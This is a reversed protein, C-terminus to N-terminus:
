LYQPVVLVVLCFLLGIQRRLLMWQEDLDWVTWLDNLGMMHQFHEKRHTAVTPVELKQDRFLGLVSAITSIVLSSDYSSFKSGTLPDSMLREAIWSAEEEIEGDQM